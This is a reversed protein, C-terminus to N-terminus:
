NFHQRAATLYVWGTYVTILASVWILLLGLWSGGLWSPTVPDLLLLFLAVMQAATKWKALWTVPVIVQLEALHERLGSVLIERCLIAIAPIVHIGQLLGDDVLVVLVAAILLKDAIPDLFRGIQSQVNWKRALVGDFYDSICALLFLFAALINGAAGHMYFVAVLMPIVAIRFYTLYNPINRRWDM